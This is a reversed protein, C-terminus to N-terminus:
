VLADHKPYILGIQNRVEDMVDMLMISDDWSWKDSQIKGAELCTILEAAEYNYLNGTVEVVVDEKENNLPALTIKQPAYVYQGVHIDGKECYITTTSDTEALLSTHITAFTGDNYTLNISCNTDVGTTGITGAATISSPKGLIYLATFLSYIGMDLLAGGILDNSFFRNDPSFPKREGFNTTLLNVKGIVGSEIIEKLKIVRPNFRTWLAEMLFVGKDRAADIMLRVERGNVAFPKECLVHKGKSIALLTNECHYNHPTAIYIIDIEADNMMDEYSGYAKCNYSNAFVTATDLSRSAVAYLKSQPVFPMADAMKKAIWGTGVIGWNYIKKNKM